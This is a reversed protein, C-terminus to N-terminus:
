AARKAITGLVDMLQQVEDETTYHVFSFRLVGSEASLGLSEILRKSYFHGSSCMVKGNAMERAWAQSDPGVDLAVTPARVTADTPGIVRVNNLNQLFDLLPQLLEIEHQRMLQHINERRAVSTAEVKSFHHQHVSDFYDAIGAAAAVQAHDPGAPVLRKRPEDNNFYHSQNPLQERVSDRVVMLGQHPGFTKYLSFLYVDCGLAQVDSFGHGAYSVGDVVTVVGADGALKCIDAVPNIHAVINSCHPFSLLRTRDTFLATLDDPNLEGTIPNVQWQKVVIGADTLKRWVGSNAEHDQNTVIIEDGEQWLQRFAQALVYTNQSTSPGIHVEQTQVNLYEALRVYTEDMQDGASQAAPYPAYPQVKTKLYYQTLRDIVQSCTYSGGANEFFAWGQLSPDSFAPFQSRIFDTDIM